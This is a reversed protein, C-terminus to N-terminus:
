IEDETLFEVANRVTINATLLEGFPIFVAILVWFVFPRRLLVKIRYVFFIILPKMIIWMFLLVKACFYEDNTFHLMRNLIYFGAIIFYSVLYVNFINNLIIAKNRLIEKNEASIETDM